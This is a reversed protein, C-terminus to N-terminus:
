QLLVPEIGTSPHKNSTYGHLTLSLL